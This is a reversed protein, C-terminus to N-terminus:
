KIRIKITNFPLLLANAVGAAAVVEEEAEAVAVAEEEIAEVVGVTAVAEIAAEEPMDVVVHEAMDGAAEVITDAVETLVERMDEEMHVVEQMDEEMGMGAAMTDAAVVMIDAMIDEIITDAAMFDIEETDIIAMVM